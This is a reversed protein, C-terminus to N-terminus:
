LIVFRDLSDIVEKQTEGTIVEISQFQKESISLMQVNGIDPKHSKVGNRISNMATQNLAIKSYVSKQIMVFGQTILYKRFKAYTRREEKTEMPLDFYM